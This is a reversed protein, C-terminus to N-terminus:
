LELLVTLSAVPPEPGGVILEFDTLKGPPFDETEDFSDPARDVRPSLTELTVDPFDM